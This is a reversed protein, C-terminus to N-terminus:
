YSDSKPLLNYKAKLSTKCNSNSYIMSKMKLFMQDEETQIEEEQIAEPVHDGINWLHSM